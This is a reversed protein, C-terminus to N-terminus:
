PTDAARELVNSFISINHSWFVKLLVSEITLFYLYWYSCTCAPTYYNFYYYLIKMIITTKMM